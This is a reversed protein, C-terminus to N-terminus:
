KQSILWEIYKRSKMSKLKMEYIAAESNTSFEKLYALKWPTGSKTSSCQKSNHESLRRNMNNTHGIYYKSLKESFLIYTYFNM